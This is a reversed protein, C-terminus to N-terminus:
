CYGGRIGETIGDKERDASLNSLPIRIVKGAVGEISLRLRTQPEFELHFEGLTNTTTEALVLGKETWLMVAANALSVRPAKHNLVQGILSVCASRPPRDFRLDVMMGDAEFVMQRAAAAAASRVGVLAPQSFSDFVVKGLTENEQVHSAEFELKVMRLSDPPPCYTNERAGIAGLQRWLKMDKLCQSCDNAVHSQLEKHAFVDLGRVYDAFVEESFHPM